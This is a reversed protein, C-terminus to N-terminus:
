AIVEAYKWHYGGATRRENRLAVSISSHKKLGNDAAAETLSDYLKGDELRVIKKANPNKGGTLKVKNLERYAHACNEGGTVWELNKVENNFHNGDIHNVQPKNEPNPIFACAVVRHVRINKHPYFDVAYYQNNKSGIRFPKLVLGDDDNRVRGLSSVSYRPFGEVKKWEESRM